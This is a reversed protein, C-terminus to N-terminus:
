ESIWTMSNVEQDNLEIHMVPGTGRPSMLTMEVSGKFTMMKTLRGRLVSSFIQNISGDAPIGRLKWSTYKTGFTGSGIKELSLTVLGGRRQYQFYSGWQGKGRKQPPGVEKLAEEFTMGPRFGEFLTLDVLDKWSGVPYVVIKQDYYVIKRIPPTGEVIEEKL